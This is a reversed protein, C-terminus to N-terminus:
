LESGILDEAPTTETFVEIMAKMIARYAPLRDLGERFVFGMEFVHSGADLNIVKLGRGIPSSAIMTSEYFLYEGSRALEVCAYISSTELVYRPPLAGREKLLAGFTGLVERTSVFSVFPYQALLRPDVPGEIRALPHDQSVMVGLTARALRLRRFQPMENQRILAGAFIDIRGLRLDEIMEDVPGTKVMLRHRPFRRHFLPLAAPIVTSTWVPGSGITITTEQESLLNRIEQVAHEYELGILQAHNLFARGTDTLDSGGSHREFLQTGLVDELKRINKSLAPQSIRLRKAAKSIGKEEAVVVFHRLLTLNPVEFSM